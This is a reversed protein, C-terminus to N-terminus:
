LNAGHCLALDRPNPPRNPPIEPIERNVFPLLLPFVPVFANTNGMNGMSLAPLSGSLFSFGAM